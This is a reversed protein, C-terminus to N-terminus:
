HRRGTPKRPFVNPHVLMAVRYLDRPLQSLLQPLLSDLRGFTSTPGWTSTVVVLRQGDEIGLARRYSERGPWGATIRDVCPDGAVHAVALAEPCSRGLEELDRDHAYVIAAPVLRGEHMLHQQSLM